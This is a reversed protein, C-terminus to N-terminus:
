LIKPGRSWEHVVTDKRKGASDETYTVKIEEFNLVVIDGLNASAATQYSTVMVNKLEYRFYTARSMPKDIIASAFVKKERFAAALAPASSDNRVTLNMIELRRNPGAKQHDLSLVVIWGTHDPDQAEGEVQDLKMFGVGSAEGETIALAFGQPSLFIISMAFILFLTLKKM